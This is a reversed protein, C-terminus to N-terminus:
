NKMCANFGSQEINKIEQLKQAEHRDIMQLIGHADAIRDKLFYFHADVTQSAFSESENKRKEEEKNFNSQSIEIAARLDADELTLKEIKRELDFFSQNESRLFSVYAVTGYFGINALSLILPANSIARLYIVIFLFLGALSVAIVLGNISKKQLSEGTYHGAFMMAVSIAITVPILAGNSIVEDNLAQIAFYNIVLEACGLSMIFYQYWNATTGNNQRRKGKTSKTFITKWKM